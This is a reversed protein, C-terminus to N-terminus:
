KAAEIALKVAGVVPEGVVVFDFKGPYYRDIENMATDAVWRSKYVGGVLVLPVPESFILKAAAVRVSRSIEKGATVLIERAIKDGDTAAEDCLVALKALEGESDQFIFRLLKNINKYKYKRFVLDALSTKEGRGDLYEAVAEMVKNGIWKASGKNVWGQNNVLIEQGGNWGHIATGTGAIAVIGDHGSAGSRFAVLQDSGINLKASFIKTLKKQKKLEKVINAKENKYEEEVDPIGIFISTIKINRKGKLVGAIGATLNKVAEAVGVNRPASSGSVARAVIKGDMDALVVATKTGGGDVGIVFQNKAKDIM